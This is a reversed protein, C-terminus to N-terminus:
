LEPRSSLDALLKRRNEANSSFLNCAICYVTYNKKIKNILKNAQASIDESPHWCLAFIIPVYHHFSKFKDKAAFIGMIDLMISLTSEYDLSNRVVNMVFEGASFLVEVVENKAVM